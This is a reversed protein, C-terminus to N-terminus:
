KKIVIATQDETNLIINGGLYREVFEQPVFLRNEINMVPLSLVASANNVTIENSNSTFRITKKGYSISYNGDKGKKYTLGLAKCVQDFPLIVNKGITIPKISYKQTSSNVLVAKSEAAVAAKRDAVQKQIAKASTKALDSVDNFNISNAPTLTPYEITINENIRSTESSFRLDLTAEAKLFEHENSEPYEGSPSLKELADDVQQTNMYLQIIGNESVIYGQSNILYDIIIGQDGLMTVGDLVDLAANLDERFSTTGDRFKDFTDNFDWGAETGEAMLMTTMLFEKLMEKTEEDQPMDAAIFKLLEKLSSDTLKLQYVKHNEGNLTRDPLQTVIVFNPDKEIAYQKILNLLETQLVKASNLTETYTSLDMGPVEEMQGEDMEIYEVGEETEPLLGVASPPLKLINRMRPPTLTFDYDMWISAHETVDMLTLAMDVQAKLITQENNQSVKQTMDMKLGKFMDLFPEVLAAEEINSNLTVDEIAFSSRNEFSRIENTKEIANLLELKDQAACGTLGTFLLSIIFIVSMLKFTKKM